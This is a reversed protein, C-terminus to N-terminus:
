LKKGAMELLNHKSADNQRSFNAPNSSIFSLYRSALRMTRDIGNWLIILTKLFAYRSGKMPEYVLGAPDLKLNQSLPDLILM